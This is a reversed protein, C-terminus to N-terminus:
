HFDFDKDLFSGWYTNTIYKDKPDVGCLWLFVNRSQLECTYIMNEVIHKYRKEINPEWESLGKMLKYIVVLPFTGAGNAPDLWKM